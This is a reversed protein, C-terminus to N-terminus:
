GTPGRIHGTAEWKGPLQIPPVARHHLSPRESACVSKLSSFTSYAADDFSSRHMFRSAAEHFEEPPPLIKPIFTKHEPTSYGFVKAMLM